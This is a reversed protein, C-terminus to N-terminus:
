RRCLFAYAPALLLHPPTEPWVTRHHLRVRSHELLETSNLGNFLADAGPPERHSSELFESTTILCRILASELLDYAITRSQFRHEFLDFPNRRRIGGNKNLSFGAGALLQDRVRNM